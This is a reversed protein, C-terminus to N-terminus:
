IAIWNQPIIDELKFNGNNMWKKPAIVIKEPNDNLWAAWWSFTSNAIINHSCQSMLHLEEYDPINNGSVVTLKHIYFLNNNVWNPDDTFVFIPFNGLKEKLINIAQQYYNIDLSGFKTAYDKRIIYDGRRVHLSVPQECQSILSKFLTAQKSIPFRLQLENRLRTEVEPIIYKYSVWFGELYIDGRKKFLEPNFHPSSEVERTVSIPYPFHDINFLKNYIKIIRNRNKLFSKNCFFTNIEDRNAIFERIMFNHLVYDRSSNSSYWSIDLKNITKNLFALSTGVAYQFLQNGLGHQLKTIIM